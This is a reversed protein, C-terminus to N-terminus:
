ERVGAQRILSAIEPHGAEEAHRLATKAQSDRVGTDAGRELLVRVNEAYGRRAAWMLPTGGSQDRANVDASADLLALMVALDGNWVHMLPTTGGYGDRTDVDAGKRLLVRVTGAHGQSFPGDPSVAYALATQRAFADTAEIDAGAKILQRVVNTRGKNAALVLVPVGAERRNPDAGHALLNRVVAVRGKYAARSLPGWDGKVVLDPSVGVALLAEVEPTNGREAAELLAQHLNQREVNLLDRTDTASGAGTRGLALNVRRLGADAQAGRLLLRPSRDPAPSTLGGVEGIYVSEPSSNCASWTPDKAQRPKSGGFEHRVPNRRDGFRDAASEPRCAGLRNPDLRPDPEESGYRRIKVAM